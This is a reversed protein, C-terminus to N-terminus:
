RKLVIVLVEPLVSVSKHLRMAVISKCSKCAMDENTVGLYNDLLSQLSNFGEPMSLLVTNEIEFTYSVKRCNVCIRIGNILHHFTDIFISTTGQLHTYWAQEIHTMVRPKKIPTLLDDNLHAFLMMFFEFADEHAHDRYREDLADIRRKFEEPWITKPDTETGAWLLQM